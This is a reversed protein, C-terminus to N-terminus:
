RQSMGETPAMLCLVHHQQPKVPGVVFKGERDGTGILQDWKLCLIPARHVGKLCTQEAPIISVLDEADQRLLSFHHSPRGGWGCCLQYVRFTWSPRRLSGAGASWLCLKSDMGGSVISGNPLYAVCTVWESHGATKTYLNRLVKGSSIEVEKLGHDASGVVCTDNGEHLSM